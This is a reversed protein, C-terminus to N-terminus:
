EENFQFFTNQLALYKHYQKRSNKTREKNLKMYKKFNTKTIYAM